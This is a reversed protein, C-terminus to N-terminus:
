LLHEFCFCCCAGVEKLNDELFPKAEPSALTQVLPYELVTGLEKPAESVVEQVPTHTRTNTHM